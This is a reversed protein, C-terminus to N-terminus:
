RTRRPHLIYFPGLQSRYWYEHVRKWELRWPCHWLFGIKM